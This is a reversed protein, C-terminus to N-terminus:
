RALYLMEPTQLQHIAEADIKLGTGRAEVELLALPNFPRAYRIVKSDFSNAQRQAERIADDLYGIEDVLKLKLAEEATYVKGNALAKVDDLSLKRGQAVVRIFRQYAQDVIERWRARQPEAMPKLMSGADKWQDDTAIVVVEVGLKDMLGKLQPFQMIVGISGTWTTPEAFIRDASASVYYGGSAAMGGMSVVVPRKDKEDSLTALERWIRDSGSVTGGPSDVRLVVAKVMHDERAQRIQKLVHEVNGAAILGNVEIIAIKELAGFKGAVYNEDMPPAIGLGGPLLLMNLFVSLGLLLPWFFRRLCGGRPKREVFIPPGPAPRDTTGSTEM